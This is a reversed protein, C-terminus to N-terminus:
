WTGNVISTGHLLQMLYITAAASINSQSTNRKNLILSETIRSLLNTSKSLNEKPCIITSLSVGSSLQGAIWQLLSVKNTRLSYPLIVHLHEQLWSSNLPRSYWYHLTCFINVFNPISFYQVSKISTTELKNVVLQLRRYNIQDIKATKSKFLKSKLIGMIALFQDERQTIPHSLRVWNNTSVSQIVGLGGASIPTSVLAPISKLHPFWALLEKELLGIFWLMFEESCVSWPLMRSCCTWWNNAMESEIDYTYKDVWPNAYILSKLGLWPYSFVGEPSYLRRLFDGVRGVSTKNINAVLGFSNYADTLTAKDISGTNSYFILDDGMAATQIKGINGTIDLIYDGAILSLLTGVISTIRWGSLLGGEWKYKHKDWEIELHKMSEIEEDAIWRTESDINGLHDIVSLIFWKPVTHDFRDGDVAGYWKYLTDNFVGLWGGSAIPSHIHRPKGWRYLLYSQRLYSAMPTTIIERTKSAEEKLAVKCINGTNVASAYVGKGYQELTQQSIDPLQDYKGNVYGWMWKTRYKEGHYETKPAGGSTAWRQLDMCFPFFRMMTTINAQRPWTTMYHSLRTMIYEQHDNIRGEVNSIWSMIDDHISQKTYPSKGGLQHMHMLFMYGPNDSVRTLAWSSLKKLKTRIFDDICNSPVNQMKISKLIVSYIGRITHLINYQGLRRLFTTIMCYAYSFSGLLKATARDINNDCPITRLRLLIDLKEVNAQAKTPKKLEGVIEDNLDVQLIGSQQQPLGFYQYNRDRM